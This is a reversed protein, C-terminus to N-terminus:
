VLIIHYGYFGDIYSHSLCVSLCASSGNIAIDSLSTKHVPSLRGIAATVASTNYVDDDDAAAAV